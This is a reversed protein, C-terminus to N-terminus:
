VHLSLHSQPVVKEVDWGVTGSSNVHILMCTPSHYTVFFAAKIYNDGHLTVIDVSMGILYSASTFM